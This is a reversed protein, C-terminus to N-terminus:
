ADMAAEDPKIVVADNVFIKRVFGDKVNGAMTTKTLLDALNLHGPIWGNRIIM